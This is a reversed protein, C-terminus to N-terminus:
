SDRALQYNGSAPKRFTKLFVEAWQRRFREAGFKNSLSRRAAEGALRRQAADQLFYDIGEALAGATRERCVYGDVGHEVLEPVGGVPFVVSPVGARKAEFVVNPSPEEWVSPCVHVDAHRMLEAIDTRYGLFLIHQSWGAAEARAQLSTIMENGWMSAGAIWVSLKRGARLLKEAAEVLVPVGKHEAVQGVYLVLVCNPWLMPLESRDNECRTSPYNYILASRAPNLGLVRFRQVLFECNCVLCDVNPLLHRGTWRHFWSHSPLQDGARFVLPLELWRIAPAAYLWFAWNPAFIHTAGWRRAERWVRWSTVAIGYLNLFGYYFKPGLLYKGWHYGFPAMTWEFGHRRLEPLITRTGWKNSIVFKAKLGLPALAHFVEINAREQGFLEAGGFLVLM